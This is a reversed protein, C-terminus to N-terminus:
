NFSRSARERGGVVHGGAWQSMYGVVVRTGHTPSRHETTAYSLLPGALRWASTSCAAPAWALRAQETRQQVLQGMRAAPRSAKSALNDGGQTCLCRRSLGGTIPAADVRAPHRDALVRLDKVRECARAPTCPSASKTTTRTWQGTRAVSPTGARRRKGAVARQSARDCPASCSCPQESSSPGPCGRSIEETSPRATGESKAHLVSAQARVKGGRADAGRSRTTACANEGREDVDQGAHGPRDTAVKKVIEARRGESTSAAPRSRTVIDDDAGSGKAEGKGARKNWPLM